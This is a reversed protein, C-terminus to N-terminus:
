LADIDQIEGDDALTIYDYLATIEKIENDTFPREAKLTMQKKTADTFLQSPFITM